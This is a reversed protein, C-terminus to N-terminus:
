PPQDEAAATCNFPVTPPFLCSSRDCIVHLSWPRVKENRFKTSTTLSSTTTNIEPPVSSGLAMVRTLLSRLEDEEWAHSVTGVAITPVRERDAHAPGSVWLPPGDSDCFLTSTDIVKTQQAPPRQQLRLNTTQRPDHPADCRYGADGPLVLGPFLGFSQEHLEGAGTSASRLRARALASRPVPAEAPSVIQALSPAEAAPAPAPAPAAAPAPAPAAAAPQKRVCPM